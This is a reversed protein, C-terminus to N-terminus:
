STTSCSRAHEVARRRRPARRRARPRAGAFDEAPRFEVVGEAGQLTVGARMASVLERALRADEALGDFQEGEDGGTVLLQYIDHAGTDFRMEVLRSRCSRSPRRPDHRHRAGRSHSVTRSKAGYWRQQTVYEILAQEDM